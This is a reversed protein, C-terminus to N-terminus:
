APMAKWFYGHIGRENDVYRRRFSMEVPAGVHLGELECDTFDLFLRGGGDMDVIGYIQPPDYSFALMDGTYTFITGRRDSFRYEEMQDQVGCAPNVCVRQPPFQPMGCANCRSGVLGFVAKRKRWLMSLSTAPEAEGRFGLDIPVLKRIATYKEYSKLERKRALYYSVGRTEMLARIKETVEFYLADSGNGYSAVLLKDGPSAKELANVLMILPHATGTDGATEYLNDQVRDAAIGLKKAIALHTRKFHCPYIV